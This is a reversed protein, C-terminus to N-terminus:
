AASRLATRKLWAMRTRASVLSVGALHSEFEVSARCKLLLAQRSAELGLLLGCLEFLQTLLDGLRSGCRESATSACASARSEDGRCEKEDPETAGSEADPLDHLAARLREEPGTSGRDSERQDHQLPHRINGSAGGDGITGRLLGDDHPTFCGDLVERGGHRLALPRRPRKRLGQHRRVTRARGSLEVRGVGVLGQSACSAFLGDDVVGFDFCVNARKQALAGASRRRERCTRRRVFFRGAGTPALRKTM